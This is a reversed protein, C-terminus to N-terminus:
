SSKATARALLEDSEAIAPAAGLSAFRERAQMLRDRAEPVRGLSLLCRGEGLLAHGHEFVHPFASWAEAAELHLELAEAHHGELEALTARASLVCNRDRWLPPAAHEVLDRLLDADGAALCVRASDELLWSTFGPREHM